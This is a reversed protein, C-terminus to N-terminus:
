EARSGDLSFSNLFYHDFHLKSYLPVFKSCLTATTQNLFGSKVSKRHEFAQSFGYHITKVSTPLIYKKGGFSGRWTWMSLPATHAEM